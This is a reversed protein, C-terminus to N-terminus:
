IDYYLEFEYPHPRQRFAAIEAERKYDIWTKILDDTFVGGARLFRNDAELAALAEDLSAPVTGIKKLENEPLEYLNKDVPAPPEIKNLIGDIGAMLQAAFALYPNSSPDPSRFEIRKAHPNDGTVPIRIAASRNRASYVLNVPAEYGPVLRHYSNVTPNTFASLAKAHKIIGGIYWRAIDSLDGYKGKEYFLPTGDKALSQHCHMGSGNDGFLPKPLFTATKGDYTATNKIIYKFKVLEDAAATLTNYRYNIEQQGATGVEHHSREVKLGADLLNQVMEDRLDAQQDTPPVAFYGGKVRPKYGLNGEWDDGKSDSNWAGEESDVEYYSKNIDTVYRVSNFVYFEAEPAFYATDAVGADRLYKEAKKATFRSDRSYPEHTVPDVIDGTLVVTKARRFPDVYKTELDPILKMDSENIAQFGRVSSGDFAVGNKCADGLFEAVPMVLHQEVGVLDMFRVDVNVIGEKEILVELEGIAEKSSM